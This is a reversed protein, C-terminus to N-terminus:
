KEESSNRRKYNGTILRPIYILLKYIALKIKKSYLYNKRLHRIPKEQTVVLALEPHEIAFTYNNGENNDWEEEENKFCFSFTDTDTINVEIQFGIETKRMNEEFKTAWDDGFAYNISVENSHDQFFRGTYSIKITSNATLKDTNFFINKVLEM